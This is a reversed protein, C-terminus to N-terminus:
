GRSGWLFTGGLGLRRGMRKGQRGARHSVVGEGEAEEGEPGEMIALLRQYDEHADAYGDLYLGALGQSSLGEETM